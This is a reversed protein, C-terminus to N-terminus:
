GEGDAPDARSRFIRSGGPGDLRVALGDQRGALPLAENWVVSTKREEGAFYQGFCGRGAVPWGADDFAAAHLAALVADFADRENM